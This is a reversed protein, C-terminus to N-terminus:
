KQGTIVWINRVRDPDVFPQVEATQSHGTQDVSIITGIPVDPPVQAIPTDTALAKSLGATIIYQGVELPIDRSVDTLKIRSGLQWQGAILGEAPTETGATRASITSGYDTILLVDATQAYVRDVVGILAAPSGGEKSVVAMGAEIGDVNGKSIRIIRRGNDTSGQVVTASLTQWSYTQRIQLEQELLGIKNQYTKLRINDERLTAIERELEDIRRQMTGQGTVSGITEGITIRTQTLTQEIPQLVAQIQGKAGDLHGQEDLIILGLAIAILLLLLTVRRRSLTPSRRENPADFTTRM